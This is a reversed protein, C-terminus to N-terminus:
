LHPMVHENTVAWEVCTRVQALTRHLSMNFQQTLRLEALCIDSTTVDPHQKEWVGDGIEPCRDDLLKSSLCLCALAVDNTKHPQERFLCMAHAVIWEFGSDGSEVFSANLRKLTGSLWTRDRKNRRRGLFCTALDDANLRTVLEGRPESM